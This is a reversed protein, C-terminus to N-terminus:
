SQEVDNGIMGFHDYDIPFVQGTETQPLFPLSSFGDFDIFQSTVLLGNNLDTWGRKFNNTTTRLQEFISAGGKDEEVIGSWCCFFTILTPNSGVSKRVLLRQHYLQQSVVTNDGSALAM